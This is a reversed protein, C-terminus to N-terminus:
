CQVMSIQLKLASKMNHNWERATVVTFAVQVSMKCQDKELKQFANHALKNKQEIPCIPYARTGM